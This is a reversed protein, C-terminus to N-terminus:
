CDDLYDLGAWGLQYYVAQGRGAQIRTLLGRQLMDQLHHSVTNRDYEGHTLRQVEQILRAEELKPTRLHGILHLIRFVLSEDHPM